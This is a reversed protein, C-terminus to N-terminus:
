ADLGKTHRLIRKLLKYERESLDQSENLWIHDLEKESLSQYFASRESIYKEEKVAHEAYPKSAREVRNMHWDAIEKGRKIEKGKKRKAEALLESLTPTVYNDAETTYTQRVINTKDAPMSPKQNAAKYEGSISTSGNMDTTHKQRYDNSGIGKLSNCDHCLPQLNNIDLRLTPFTYVAKIHDVEIRSRTGCKLCQKGYKKFVELRLKKWADSKLFIRKATAWDRKNAFDSLHPSPDQAIMEDIFRSRERRIRASESDRQIKKRHYEIPNKGGSYMLSLFCALFIITLLDSM